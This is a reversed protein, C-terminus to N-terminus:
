ICREHKDTKDQRTLNAKEKGRLAGERAKKLKNEECIIKESSKKAMAIM